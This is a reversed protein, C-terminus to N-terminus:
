KLAQVNAALDKTEQKSGAFIKMQGESQQGVSDLGFPTAEM